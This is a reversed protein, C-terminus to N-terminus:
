YFVLAVLFSILICYMFHSKACCILVVCAPYFLSIHIQTFHPSQHLHFSSGLGLGTVAFAVPCCRWLAFNPNPGTKSKFKRYRLMVTLVAGGTDTLTLTLTLALLLKNYLNYAQQQSQGQLETRGQVKHLSGSVRVGSFLSSTYWFFQILSTGISFM